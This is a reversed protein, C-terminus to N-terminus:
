IGITHAEYKRNVVDNVRIFKTNRPLDTVQSSNTYTMASRLSGLIEGATTVISGRYPVKVVRGESARHSQKQNKTMMAHNSSMGYFVKFKQDEDFFEDETEDHGAFMSGIMVWDAGLAIAKVADAYEVVGGDACVHLGFKKAEKICKKVATFQPMGIGATVRTRCVAGPGIGVKVCDVGANHYDRIIDPTCINGAMIYLAYKEDKTYNRIDTILNLFAETYGNAVDLCLKRIGKKMMKDVIPRWDDNLGISVFVNEHVIPDFNDLDETKNLAVTIPVSNESFAKAVNLTGVCDMNSVIIPSSKFNGYSVYAKGFGYSYDRVVNADRRSNLKTKKPLMLVQNYDLYEEEKKFFM